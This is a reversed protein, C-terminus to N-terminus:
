RFADGAGDSLLNGTFHVNQVGDYIRFDASAAFTSGSVMNNSFTSNVVNFLFAARGNDVM